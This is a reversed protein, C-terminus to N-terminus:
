QLSRKNMIIRYDTPKQKSAVSLFVKKFCLLIQKGKPTSFNSLFPNSGDAKGSLDLVVHKGVLQAGLVPGQRKSTLCTLVKQLLFIPGPVNSLHQPLPLQPLTGEMRWACLEGQLKMEWCMVSVLCDSAEVYIYVYIYIFSLFLCIDRLDKHKSATFRLFSIKCTLLIM